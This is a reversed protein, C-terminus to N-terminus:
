GREEALREAGARAQDIDRYATVRMARGEVWETVHTERGQIPATSGIPRAHHRNVAFTVGNGLDLFDELEYRLEEFTDWYGTMVTRITTQGEYVGLGSPSADYVRDPAAYSMLTDLDRRNVADLGRRAIEALDPTTSEESV